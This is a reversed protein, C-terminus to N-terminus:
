RSRRRAISDAEKVGHGQPSLPPRRVTCFGSAGGASDCRLRPSRVRLDSGRENFATTYPLPIAHTPTRRISLRRAHWSTTSRWRVYGLATLCCWAAYLAQARAARDQPNGILRPLSDRFAAMADKGMLEIVPNRDPAYFAEMAHAIANMASTVTLSIPLSMTLDVDYIM